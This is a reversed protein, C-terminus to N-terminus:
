EGDNRGEWIKLEEMGFCRGLRCRKRHKSSFVCLLKNLIRYM